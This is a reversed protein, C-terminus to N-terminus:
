HTTLYNHMHTTLSDHTEIRKSICHRATLRPLLLAATAWTTLSLTPMLFFFRPLVIKLSEPGDPWLSAGVLPISHVDDIDGLFAGNPFHAIPHYARASSVDRFSSRKSTYRKSRILLKGASRITISEFACASLCVHAVQLFAQSYTHMYTHICAHMHVHIHTHTYIYTYIYTHKHTHTHTYIAYM